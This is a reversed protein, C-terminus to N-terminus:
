KKIEDLKKMVNVAQSKYEERLRNYTHDSIKKARYEKELEKLSGLLLKKRLELIEPTEVEEKRGKGKLYSVLIIVGSGILAIVAIYIIYYWLSIGEKETPLIAKLIANTLINKSNFVLKNDLNVSIEDTTYIIKKTIFNASYPLRYNIDLRFASTSLNYSTLNIHYKEGDLSKNLSVLKNSISAKIEEATGQIFIFIIKNLFTNNTIHFFIEENVSFYERTTTVNIFYKKIEINENYSQAYSKKVASLNITSVIVLAVLLALGLKKM